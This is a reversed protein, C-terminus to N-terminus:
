VQLRPDSLIRKQSGFGLLLALVYRTSRGSLEDRVNNKFAYVVDGSESVQLAAKTDAAVAQLARQEDNHHVFHM